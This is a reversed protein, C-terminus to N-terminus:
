SSEHIGLDLCLTRHYCFAKAKGSENKELRKRWVKLLNIKLLSKCGMRAEPEGKSKIIESRLACIKWTRM